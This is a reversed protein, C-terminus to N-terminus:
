QLEPPPCTLPAGPTHALVTNETKGLLVVVSAASLKNVRCGAVLVDAGDPIRQPSAEMPLILGTLGNPGLVSFTLRPFPRTKTARADGPLGEGARLYLPYLLRGNIVFSNEDALFSEVEAPSYGAREFAGLEAMQAASEAKAQKKYRLPFFAESLVPLYGAAFFALLLLAAAGAGRWSISFPAKVRLSARGAGKPGRLAGSTSSGPTRSSQSERGGFLIWVWVALQALGLAFYLVVIWDVPVIYRGGSARALGNSFQYALFIALPALGAAGARRWAFAIGLALAALNLTIGPRAGAPLQGQWTEDWFPLDGRLTHFLDDLRPGPPLILTSTVLNHLFNQSVFTTINVVKAQLGASRSPAAPASSAPGTEGVSVPAAPAPTAQYRHTEVVRVRDFYPGLFARGNQMNRLSWPTIAALFALGFLIGALLWRRWERLHALPVLLMALPAAVMPNTRVMSLLGALGGLILAGNLRPWGDQLWRVLAYVMLAIGIATFFDTLFLKPNAGNIWTASSIANVGRLTTLAAALIGAPRNFLRRGILYVLAPLAAFLAAQLAAAQTYNQGAILHIMVLFAPYLSRDYATGNRIGQGILAYQSMVDFSIADSYPYYANNPPYPGPAFFTRQLPERAWFFAAILWIAAFLILDAKGALISRKSGTHEVESPRIQGSMRREVWAAAVALAGAALLQLGLLPVGAEYWMDENAHIGMGTVAMFGWLLLEAALLGGAVWLARRQGTLVAVLNKRHLGYRQALLVLFAEGAFVTLWVVAPKLREVTAQMQGFRYLPLFTFVWGALLLGGTLGILVAILRRNRLVRADLWLLWRPSRWFQLSLGALALAAALLAGATVLRSLSYGFLFSNKPDAPISLISVVAALAVLAPLAFFLAPAPLRRRLSM